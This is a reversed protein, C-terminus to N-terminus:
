GELIQFYDAVKASRECGPAHHGATIISFRIQKEVLVYKLVPNTVFIKLLHFTCKLWMCAASFGNVTEAFTHLGSIAAFYQGAPALFATM